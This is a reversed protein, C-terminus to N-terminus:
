SKSFALNFKTLSCIEVILLPASVVTLWNVEWMGVFEDGSGDAILEEVWTPM